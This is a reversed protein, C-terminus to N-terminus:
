GKRRHSHEERKKAARCWARSDGTVIRGTAVLGPGSEVTGEKEGRVTVTYDEVLRPYRCSWFAIEYDSEEPGWEERESEPRELFHVSAPTERPFAPYTSRITVKAWKNTSVYIDTHGPNRYTRGPFARTSVKLFTPPGGTEKNEEPTGKHEPIATADAGAPALLLASAVAVTAIVHCSAGRV